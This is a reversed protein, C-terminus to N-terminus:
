GAGLVTVSEDASPVRRERGSTGEAGRGEHRGARKAFAKPVPKPGLVLGHKHGIRELTSRHRRFRRASVLVLTGGALVLAATAIQAAFLLDM